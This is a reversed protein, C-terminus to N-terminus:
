KRWWKSHTMGIRKQGYARRVLCSIPFISLFDQFLKNEIRSTIIDATKYKRQEM